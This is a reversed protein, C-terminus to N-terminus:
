VVTKYQEKSKLCSWCWGRWASRSPATSWPSGTGRRGLFVVLSEGFELANKDRQKGKFDMKRIRFLPDAKPLLTSTDRAYQVELKMRKQMEKMNNKALDALFVDM